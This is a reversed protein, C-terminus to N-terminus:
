VDDVVQKNGRKKIYNCWFVHLGNDHEWQEDLSHHQQQEWFKAIGTPETSFLPLHLLFSYSSFTTKKVIFNKDESQASNEFKHELEHSWKEPNCIRGVPVGIIGLKTRVM